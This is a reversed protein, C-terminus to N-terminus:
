PLVASRLEAESLQYILISYGAMADPKREMLHSRLRHLQLTAVTRLLPIWKGMSAEDFRNPPETEELRRVYALLGVYERESEADWPPRGYGPFILQTASLCYTGATYALPDAASMRRNTINPLPHAQIGLRAPDDRGFYGIYVEDNKIEGEHRELWRALSPLDQGWDVNSDTLHRYGNAPGGAFFNFYSLYHPHISAVVAVQAVFLCALVTRGATKRRWLWAGTAGALIMLPLYLPLLHRHGINLNTTIASAGYVLLISWVIASRDLWVLRRTVRRRSFIWAAM